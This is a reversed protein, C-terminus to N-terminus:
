EANIKRSFFSFLSFSSEERSEFWVGEAIRASTRLWQIQPLIQFCFRGLIVDSLPSPLDISSNQKMLTIHTIFVPDHAIQDLRIIM